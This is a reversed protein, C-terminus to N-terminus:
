TMGACQASPRKPQHLLRYVRPCDGLTDTDVMKNSAWCDNRTATSFPTATPTTSIRSSSAALTYHPNFWPLDTGFLIKHSGAGRVAKELFGPVHESATLELYVNPMEATLAIAEDFEGWISHGLLFILEPYQETIARCAAANCRPDAWTHALVLQRHANAWAYLPHYAEGTLPYDHMTPHIKFGIVGPTEM